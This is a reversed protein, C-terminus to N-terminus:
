APMGCNAFVPGLGLLRAAELFTPSVQGVRVPRESATRDRVFAALLQMTATDIRRVAGLELTVPKVDHLRKALRLQLGEAEALTCEAQLSLAGGRVPRRRTKGRTSRQTRAAKTSPRKKMAKPTKAM